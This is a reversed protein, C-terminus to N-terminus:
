RMMGKIDVSSIDNCMIYLFISLIDLYKMEFNPQNDRM